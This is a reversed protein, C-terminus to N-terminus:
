DLYSHKYDEVLNDNIENLDKRFNDHSQIIENVFEIFNSLWEIEEKVQRDTMIKDLRLRHLKQRLEETSMFCSEKIFVFESKESVVNIDVFEQLRMDKCIKIKGPNLEFTGSKFIKDKHLERKKLIDDIRSTVDDKFNELWEINLEKDDTILEYHVSHRYRLRWKLRSFSSKLFSSLDRLESVYGEIVREADDGRFTTFDYDARLRDLTQKGKDSLIYDIDDYVAKVIADIEDDSIDFGEIIQNCLEIFTSIHRFDSELSLYKMSDRKMNKLRELLESTELGDVVSQINYYHAEIKNVEIFEDFSMNSDSMLTLPRLEFEDTMYMQSITLGRTCLFSRLAHEAAYRFYNFDDADLYRIAQISRYNIKYCRGLRSRLTDHAKLLEERLELLKVTFGYDSLDISMLSKMVSMTYLHSFHNFTLHRDFRTLTKDSVFYSLREVDAQKFHSHKKTCEFSKLYLRIMDDNLKAIGNDFRDLLDNTNALQKILSKLSLIDKNLTLRGNNEEIDLIFEILESDSLYLHGIVESDMMESKNLRMFDKFRMSEHVILNIPKVTFSGDLYTEDKELSHKTLLLMLNDNTATKFRALRTDTSCSIEQLQTYDLKYIIEPRSRLAGFAELLQSKLKILTQLTENITNHM